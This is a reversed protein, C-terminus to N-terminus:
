SKRTKSTSNLSYCYRMKALPKWANNSDSCRTVYRMVFKFLKTKTSSNRVLDWSLYWKVSKTQVNTKKAGNRTNSFRLSYSWSTVSIANLRYFRFLSKWSTPVHGLESLGQVSFHANNLGNRLVHNAFYNEAIIVNWKILQYKLAFVAFSHIKYSKTWKVMKFEKFTM